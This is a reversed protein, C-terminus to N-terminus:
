FQAMITEKEYREEEGERYEGIVDVDLLRFSRRDKRLRGSRTERKYVVKSM